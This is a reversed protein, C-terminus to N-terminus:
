HPPTPAPVVPGPTPNPTPTPAPPPTPVPGPAPPQPPMQLEDAAFAASIAFPASVISVALVWGLPNRRM